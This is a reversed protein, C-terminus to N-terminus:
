VMLRLSISKSYPEYTALIRANDGPHGQLEILPEGTKRFGRVVFSSVYPSHCSITFLKQFTKPVGDEMMWVHYVLKDAEYGPEIVVLSERLQYMSTRYNGHALRDPLNVEGFEESTLDFSIILSYVKFAGDEVAIGDRALWYLYGHPLNTTSYPSRWARTTLTFVEVQWPNVSESRTIAVIKPDTTERCVGFGLTTESPVHPVVVDVSKRICPNWIVARCGPQYDGYFCLLGHSSGILIPYELNNVLPPLTVCVSQKPFSDDDDDDDVFSVHDYKQKSGDLNKYSVLLHQRQSSYHAIFDSSEILSKWSKCVSRFRLLSKVPITKMIESHIEFPIHDSMNNM